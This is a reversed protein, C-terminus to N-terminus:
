HVLFVDAFVAEGADTCYLKCTNSRHHMSLIKCDWNVHEGNSNAVARGSIILCFKPNRFYKMCYKKLEPYLVLILQGTSTHIVDADYNFCSNTPQLIRQSFLTEARTADQAKLVFKRFFLATHVNKYNGLLASYTMQIFIKSHNFCNFVLQSYLLEAGVLHIFITIHMFTQVLIGFNSCHWPYVLASSSSFQCSM